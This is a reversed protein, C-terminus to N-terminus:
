SFNVIFREKNKEIEGKREEMRKVEQHSYILKIETFFYTTSLFGLPSPIGAKKILNRSFEPGAKGLLCLHHFDVELSRVHM